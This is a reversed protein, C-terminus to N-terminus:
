AIRRAKGDLTEWAMVINAGLSEAVERVIALASEDDNAAFPPVGAPPTGPRRIIAAYTMIETKGTRAGFRKLADRHGIYPFAIPRDLGGPEV